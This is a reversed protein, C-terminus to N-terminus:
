DPRLVYGRGRITQLYTPTRSDPEIKRRLRTVQVDVARGGGDIACVDTLAERSMIRGANSALAKLLSAETTTLRQPEGKSDLLVERDLDFRFGGLRVDATTTDPPARRLIGKIRLVLERPEFPKTLYDDAGTELGAIRDDSESMATLMLIPVSRTERISQTLSLGDEGPMMLDMVILDFELSQLFKRAANADEAVTVRFESEILYKRLLDRLRSDDDVVLIHPMDMPTMQDTYTTKPRQAHTGHRRPASVPYIPFKTQRAHNLGAATRTM